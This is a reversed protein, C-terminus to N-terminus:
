RIEFPMDNRSKPPAEEWSRSVNIRQAYAGVNTNIVDPLPKVSLDGSSHEIDVKNDDNDKGSKSDDPYIVDFPFLDNFNLINQEEKDCESLSTKDDFEDIHQPSLIPETLLDSKSTQTDNYVIATFENEFDKFFDLDDFCSVMPEPSPLLPMSVKDNDNELDTKLDSVFIIKYSFLIKDFIVTYDEDDSEDFSIKFDIENNNVSSVTPECLLTAEYTLMDNFVITPFETEVSGLDHVDEKDWINKEEDKELHEIIIGYDWAANKVKDLSVLTELIDRDLACLGFSNAFSPFGVNLDHDKFTQKFFNLFEEKIQSPDSIWVGEKMIGYIMQARRKKKILGNFFKSKKDGDIDCKVSAKQFLDFSELTDLRDVEQLLKIRSDCVDDNAFGAENKEEM